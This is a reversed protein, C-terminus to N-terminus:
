RGTILPIECMAMAIAFRPYLGPSTVLRSSKRGIPPHVIQTIEECTLGLKSICSSQM